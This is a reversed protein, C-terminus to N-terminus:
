KVPAGSSREKAAKNKRNIDDLTKQHKAADEPNRFSVQNLNRPKYSSGTINSQNLAFYVIGAMSAGACVYTFGVASM